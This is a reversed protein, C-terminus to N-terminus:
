PCVLYLVYLREQSTFLKTLIIKGIVAAAALTNNLREELETTSPPINFGFALWRCISLDQKTDKLPM